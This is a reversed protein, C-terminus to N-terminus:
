TVRTQFEFDVDDKSDIWRIHKNKLEIKIRNLSYNFGSIIGLRRKRKNNKEREQKKCIIELM